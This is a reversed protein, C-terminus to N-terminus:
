PSAAPRPFEQVPYGIARLFGVLQDDRAILPLLEKMASLAIKADTLSLRRTPKLLPALDVLAAAELDTVPQGQRGLHAEMWATLAAPGTRTTAQEYATPSVVPRRSALSAELDTIQGQQLGAILASADVAVFISRTKRAQARAVVDTLSLAGAVTSIAVKDTLGKRYDDGAANPAGAPKPPSATRSTDSPISAALGLVLALFAYRLIGGIISGGPGRGAQEEVRVYVRVLIQEGLAAMGSPDTASSPNNAVYAYANFGQSGFANPILTDSSLFRGVAPSM